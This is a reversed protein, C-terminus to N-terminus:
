QLVRRNVEDDRCAAGHRRGVDEGPADGARCHIEGFPQHVVVLCWYHAPRCDGLGM